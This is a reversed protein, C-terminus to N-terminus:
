AAGEWTAHNLNALQDELDRHWDEHLGSSEYSLVAHCVPCEVLPGIPQNWSM